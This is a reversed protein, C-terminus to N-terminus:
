VKPDILEYNGDKRRSLVNLRQNESNIFVLIEQHILDMQMAAEDVSMPKIAYNRSMVVRPNKEGMEVDEGALVQVQVGLKKIVGTEEKRRLRHNQIKEKHRLIQTQIRALAVDISKYLDDTTSDGHLFYGDAQINVEARHSRKEVGLIAHVELIDDTFKTLKEVGKKVHDELAPTVEVHRGAVTINM